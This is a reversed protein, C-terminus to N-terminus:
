SCVHLLIMCMLLLVSDQKDDHDIQVVLTGTYMTGEAAVEVSSPRQAAATIVVTYQM